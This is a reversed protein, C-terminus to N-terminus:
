NIILKRTGRNTDTELVIFYIGSTQVGRRNWEYSHTGGLLEGTKVLDVMIGASNYIKLSVNSSERLTFTIRTIDKTPNPAAIIDLSQSANDEEIGSLCEHAMSYKIQWHNNVFEEWTNIFYFNCGVVQGSHIRPKRVTNISNSVNQYEDLSAYVGFYFPSTYIDSTDVSNYVISFIGADLYRSGKVPIFGSYFRPNFPNDNSFESIFIQADELDYTITQWVTDNYYDWTLISLPGIGNCFSLNSCQSGTFLTLPELWGTEEDYSRLMISASNNEEKVWAVVPFGYGWGWDFGPQEISPFSCGGSDITVPDSFTYLERDLKVHMIKEEEMWVIRGNNNCILNTQENGSQTLINEENLGNNSYVRYYIKNIGTRDSEYFAYFSTDTNGNNFKIDIFQLNTIHVEPESLFVEPANNTYFEKFYISTSLDDESKEWFAYYTNEIFSLYHIQPNINDSSSDTLSLPTSWYDWRQSYTHNVLLFVFLPVLLIELKKM